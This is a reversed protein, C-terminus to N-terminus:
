SKLYEVVRSMEEGGTLQLFISELRQEGGNVQKQLEEKTGLAILEGKHIIGIRDCVEEAVGLTHTSMFVTRGQACQERFISKVLQAGRPDLGVMPEDVVLVRPHHLFASGMVLRQRMGHSYSEILEHRFDQLGFLEFLEDVRGELERGDVRYLGGIFRLFEEGTLKEYLFPHDPIFGMLAKARIPDGAVDVGGVLISGETPRMLGAIMKITTTKGAGNPGLFGFVEGESVHLSLNDVAVLERYRKTVGRLEIM